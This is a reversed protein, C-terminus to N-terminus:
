NSHLEVFSAYIHKGSYDHILTNEPLSINEGVAIITGNKFLITGGNIQQNPAPHLTANAIAQYHSASTKVSTNTPFYDQSFGSISAAFFLLLLRIKM